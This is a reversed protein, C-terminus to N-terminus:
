LIQIERYQVTKGDYEQVRDGVGTYDLYDQDRLIVNNVLSNCLEDEEEHGSLCYWLPESVLNGFKVM